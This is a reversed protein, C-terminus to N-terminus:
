LTVLHNKWPRWSPFYGGGWVIVFKTQKTSTKWMKEEWLLLKGVNRSSFFVQCFCRAAWSHCKVTIDQITHMSCKALHPCTVIDEQSVQHDYQTMFVFQNKKRIRNLRVCWLVARCSTQGGQNKGFLLDVVPHEQLPEWASTLHPASKANSCKPSQIVYLLEVSIVSYPGQGYM